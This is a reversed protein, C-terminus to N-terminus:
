FMWIPGALGDVLECLCCVQPSVEPGAVPGHACAIWPSEEPGAVLDLLHGVVGAGMELSSWCFFTKRKGVFLVVIEGHWPILPFHCQLNVNQEVHNDFYGLVLLTYGSVWNLSDFVPPLAIHPMFFSRKVDVYPPHFMNEQVPINANFAHTISQQPARQWLYSPVRGSRTQLWFHYNIM